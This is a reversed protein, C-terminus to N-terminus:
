ATVVREHQSAKAKMSNLLKQSILTIVLYIVAAVSYWTFPEFTKSSLMQAQHLLETSGILAVLATDKLLVLWQNGLGPLAHRWAQPVVIRIFSRRTHIGLAKAAETQGKNVAMLAGRITQSAYAAYILGLAITGATFPSVEIYEDTLLFIAHSSGFYIFFVVLIEPLGRLVTVMTTTLYRLIRFRGLELLAFVTALILGLILSSLALGLTMLTANFFLVAM